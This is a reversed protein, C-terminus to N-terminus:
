RGVRWTTSLETRDWAFRLAGRAPTTSEPAMREPILWISFSEVPEALTRSQLDVRGLDMAADYETGWQNIQRNIILKWGSRTPLMFLTYVGRPVFLSGITLDVDTHLHTAMNAGVRWISDWPVVEGMVVRGRAHPQGYDIMIRAPGATGTVGPIWRGDIMRGNLAVEATARTSLAARPVAPTQQPQQAAAVGALALILATEFFVVNRLM